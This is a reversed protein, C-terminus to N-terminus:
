RRRPPLGLQKRREERMRRYESRQARSTPSTNDLYSKRRELSDRGAGRNGGGRGGQGGQANGQRNGREARRQEWRKRREEEEKIDEDIEAIQQAPALAFFDNLEKQERAEWQRRRDEFMRDRVDEPVNRFEERMQRGLERRKEDTAGEMQARLEEIKAVHPDKGEPFFAWAAAAMLLVVVAAIIWKAKSPTSKETTASARGAPRRIIRATSM